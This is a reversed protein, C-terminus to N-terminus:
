LQYEINKKMLSIFQRKFEVKRLWMPSLNNYTNNEENNNNNNKYYTKNKTLNLNM